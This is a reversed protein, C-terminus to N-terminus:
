LILLEVLATHIVVSIIIGLSIFGDTSKLFGNLLTSSIAIHLHLQVIASRHKELHLTVKRLGQLFIRVANTDDYRAKTLSPL